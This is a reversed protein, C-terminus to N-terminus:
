RSFGAAEQEVFPVFDADTFRETQRRSITLFQM